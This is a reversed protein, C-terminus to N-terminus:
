PTVTTAKAVAARADNWAAETHFHADRQMVLAKLAELLDPAAACLTANAIAEDKSISVTHQDAFSFDAIDDNDPGGHIFVTQDWVTVTWPASTPSM